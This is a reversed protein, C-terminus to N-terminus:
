GLRGQLRPHEVSLHKFTTQGDCRTLVLSRHLRVGQIHVAQWRLDTRGRLNQERFKNQSRGENAVRLQCVGLQASHHVGQEFLLPM